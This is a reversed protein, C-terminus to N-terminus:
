VGVPALLAEGAPQDSIWLPDLGPAHLRLDRHECEWLIAPRNGHWRVSYSVWGRRTPARVVDLSQGMWSPPVHTLLDITKDPREFALLSRVHNLLAEPGKPFTYTPSMTRMLEELHSWPAADVPRHIVRRKDLFKLQEFADAAETDFGWDELAVMMDPTAPLHAHALLLEVRSADIAHQIREDPLVTHMGRQLQAAWGAQVADPGPLSAFGGTPFTGAGIRIAVRITAGHPLPYVLAHATGAGLDPVSRVVDGVAVPDDGIRTEASTLQQWIADADAAHVVDRPPRPLVLHLAADDSRDDDAGALVARLHDTVFAIVVPTRGDNTVDVMYVDPAMYAGYIDSRVDGTTTRVRTEVIPAAGVRRQRTSAQLAPDHWGDEAGVWMHLLARGDELGVSGDTGVLLGKRAGLMGIRTM